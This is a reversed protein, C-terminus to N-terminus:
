YWINASLSIQISHKKNQSRIFINRPIISQKEGDPNTQYHIYYRLDLDTLGTYAMIDRILQDCREIESLGNKTLYLLEDKNESRCCDIDSFIKTKVLEGSSVLAEADKESRIKYYDLDPTYFRKSNEKSYPDSFDYSYGLDVIIGNRVTFSIGHEEEFFADGSVAFVVDGEIQPEMIYLFYATFDEISLQRTEDIDGYNINFLRELKEIQRPSLSNLTDACQEEYYEPFNGKIKRGTTFVELDGFNQTSVMGIPEDDEYWERNSHFNEKEFDSFRMEIKETLRDLVEWSFDMCCDSNNPNGFCEYYDFLYIDTSTFLHVHDFYSNFFPVIDETLYESSFHYNIDKFVTIPTIKRDLMDKILDIRCDKYFENNLYGSKALWYFFYSFFVATLDYVKSLDAINHLKINEKAAYDLSWKSRYALIYQNSKPSLATKPRKIQYVTVFGIMVTITFLVLFVSISHSQFLSMVSLGLLMVALKMLISNRVTKNAKNLATKILSIVSILLWLFSSLDLPLIMWLDSMDGIGFLTMGMFMYLIFLDAAICLSYYVLAATKNKNEM